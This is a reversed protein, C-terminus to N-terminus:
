DSLKPRRQIFWWLGFIIGVTDFMLWAQRWAKDKMSLDLLFSISLCLLMFSVRPTMISRRQYWKKEMLVEKYLRIRRALTQLYFREM